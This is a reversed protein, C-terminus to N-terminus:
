IRILTARSGGGFPTDLYNVRFMGSILMRRSGSREEFESQLDVNELHVTASCGQARYANNGRGLRGLPLSFPAPNATSSVNRLHPNCQNLLTMSMMGSMGWDVWVDLEVIESHHDVLFELFEMNSSPFFSQVEDTRILAIWGTFKSQETGTELSGTEAPSDIIPLNDIFGIARLTFAGVMVCFCLAVIYVSFIAPILIATSEVTTARHFILMLFIFAFAGILYAIFLAPVESQLAPIALVLGAILAVGGAYRLSSLRKAGNFIASTIGELAM